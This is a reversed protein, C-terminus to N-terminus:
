SGRTVFCYSLLKNFGKFSLQEICGSRKGSDNWQVLNADFVGALYWVRHTPDMTYLEKVQLAYAPTALTIFILTILFRFKFM